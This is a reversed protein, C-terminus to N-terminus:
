HLDATENERDKETSETASFEKKVKVELRTVM